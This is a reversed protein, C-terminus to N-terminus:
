KELLFSVIEPYGNQAAMILPTYGDFTQLNLNTGYDILMKVIDMYGNQCAMMLATLGEIDQIDPNFGKEILLKVIKAHGYYSAYMPATLGEISQLNPDAGRRLLIRCAKAYGNASAHMLLTRDHTDTYDVNDIKRVIFITNIRDEQRELRAMKEAETARQGETKVSCILLLLGILLLILNTKKM